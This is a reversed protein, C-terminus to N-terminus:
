YPVVQKSILFSMPQTHQETSHPHADNKTDCMHCVKHCVKSRGSGCPALPARQQSFRLVALPARQQPIRLLAHCVGTTPRQLSMYHDRPWADFSTYSHCFHPKKLRKALSPIVLQPYLASVKAFHVVIM